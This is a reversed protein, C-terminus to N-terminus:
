LIIVDTGDFGCAEAATWGRGLGPTETTAPLATALGRPWPARLRAAASRGGGGNGGRGGLDDPPQHRGRKGRHGQQNGRPHSAIVTGPWHSWLSSMNFKPFMHLGFQVSSSSFIFCSCM